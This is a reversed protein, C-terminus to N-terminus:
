ATERTRFSRASSSTRAKPSRPEIAFTRKSSFHPSGSPSACSPEHMTARTASAFRRRVTSQRGAPPRNRNPRQYRADRMREIVDEMIMTQRDKAYLDFERVIQELRTRSLIQQNISALRDELRTTVTPQVYDEPIQQPVVLM